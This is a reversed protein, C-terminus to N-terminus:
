GCFAALVGCPNRTLAVSVIFFFAAVALVFAVTRQRRNRGYRLAVAGLVIYAVLAFVKATLWGLAFPYQGSSAAAALASALLLTDVVHPLVRVARADLRPSGRLMWYGRLLFGCASILACAVHISKFALFATM